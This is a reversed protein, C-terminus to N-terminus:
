LVTLIYMITTTIRIIIIFPTLKTMSLHQHNNCSSDDYMIYERHIFIIDHCNATAM